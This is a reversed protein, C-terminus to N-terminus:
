TFAGLQRMIWVTLFGLAMFTGTALLSRPSLRSVGCIGHGSTCGSGLRTGWGVLVGALILELPNRSLTNELSFPIAKSIFLGGLFIGLLFFYRWAEKSTKPNLMGGVIGSIGMIRGNFYLMSLAAIGILTGGSFAMFYETFQESLMDGILGCKM